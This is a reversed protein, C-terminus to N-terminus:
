ASNLGTSNVINLVLYNAFSKMRLPLPTLFYSHFFNYCFYTPEAADSKVITLATVNPLLWFPPQDPSNNLTDGMNCYILHLELSAVLASYTATVSSVPM